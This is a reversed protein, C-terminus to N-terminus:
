PSYGKKANILELQHISKANDRTEGIYTTAAWTLMAILLTYAFGAGIFVGKALFLRRDIQSHEETHKEIYEALAASSAVQADAVKSIENFARSLGDSHAEQRASMQAITLAIENVRDMKANMAAFGESVTKSLDRMSAELAIQQTQLVAVVADQGVPTPTM